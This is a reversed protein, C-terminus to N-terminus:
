EVKNKDVYDAGFFVKFADEKINKLEKVAYNYDEKGYIDNYYSMVRLWVRHERYIKKVESVSSVQSIMVSANNVVQLVEESVM